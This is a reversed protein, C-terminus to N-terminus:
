PAYKFTPNPNRPRLFLAERKPKLNPILAHRINCCRAKLGFNSEQLCRCVEVLMTIAGRLYISYPKPYIEAYAGFTILLSVMPIGVGSEYGLVLGWRDSGLGYVWSM